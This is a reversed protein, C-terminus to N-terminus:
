KMNEENNNKEVEDSNDDKRLKNKHKIVLYM